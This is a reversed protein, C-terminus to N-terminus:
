EWGGFRALPQARQAVRQAGDQYRELILELTSLDTPDATAM